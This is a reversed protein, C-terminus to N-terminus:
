GEEKGRCCRYEYDKDYVETGDDEANHWPANPPGKRKRKQLGSCKVNASCNKGKCFILYGGMKQRYVPQCKDTDSVKGQPPYPPEEPNPHEPM